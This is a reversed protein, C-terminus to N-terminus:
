GEQGHQEGDEEDAADDALVDIGAEIDDAVRGLVGNIFRSTDDSGYAKALEVAENIAVPTEVDDECLMEYLAIRMLNRDVAPMRTISWARSHGGIIRDLEHRLGDVGRALEEGYWDLPGDDLAYEGALVDDVSRGVIEAQFLLQLAQSRARTRESFRDSGM